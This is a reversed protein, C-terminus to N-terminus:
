AETSISNAHELDRLNFRDPCMGTKNHYRSCFSFAELLILSERCRLCVFAVVISSSCYQYCYSCSLKSLLLAVVTSGPLGTIAVEHLLWNFHLPKGLFFYFVDASGPLLVILLWYFNFFEVKLTFVHTFTVNVIVQPLTSSSAEDQGRCSISVPGYLIQMTAVQCPPNFENDKSWLHIVKYM